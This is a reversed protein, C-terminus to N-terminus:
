RASFKRSLFGGLEIWLPSLLLTLAIVLVTIQYGEWGFIGASLGASALLFSLEGIQALMAGGMISTKWSEGFARFLGTNLFTNGVLALLVAGLVVWMHEVFFSIDILMGISVFFLALFFAHFSHLHEQVWTSGGLRAVLVGAVFAGLGASLGFIGSLFAFGFCVLFGLFIHLEHERSFMRFWRSFLAGSSRPMLFLLLSFFILGAIQVMPAGNQQSGAMIAIIALMPILLIDQIVLIGTMEKGFKTHLIKKEDLHKLILATSSLSLIFGLLVSASTSWGLFLGITTTALATLVVQFVTGFVVLKWNKIARFSSMERGVFFLLLILGIEGLRELTHQDRIFGFVYPGILVGTLIYAIPTPQKLFHLIIMVVVSAGSLAVLSLLIPDLSTM